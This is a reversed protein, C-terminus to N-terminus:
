SIESNAETIELSFDEKPDNNRQLYYTMKRDARQIKEKNKNESTQNNHTRAHTEKSEYETQTRETKQIQLNTYKALNPFHEAM